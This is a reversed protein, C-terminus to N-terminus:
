SPTGSIVRTVPDFVIGAPLSGVVAYTPAPSGSAEPVTIPTIAIGRTWSQAAGMSNAFLPAAVAAELDFALVPGGVSFSVQIDTPTTAPFVVIDIGDSAFYGGSNTAVLRLNVIVDASPSPATWVADKVTANTFAGPTEPVNDAAATWLYTLSLNNPDTVTASLNIVDGADAFFSPSSVTVTPLNADVNDAPGVTNSFEDTSERRLAYYPQGAPREYSQSLTTAVIDDLVVTYTTSSTIPTVDACVLQLVHGDPNTWTYENEYTTQTLTLVFSTVTDELDFALAPGGINFAVAIQDTSIPTPSVSGVDPGILQVGVAQSLLLFHSASASGKRAQITATHNQLGINEVIEMYLSPQMANTAYTGSGDGRILSALEVDDWLMRVESQQGSSTGYMTQFAYAIVAVQGEDDIVGTTESIVDTWTDTDIHGPDTWYQFSRSTLTGSQGGAVSGDLTQPGQNDSREVPYPSFTALTRVGDVGSGIRIRLENGNRQVQGIVTPNAGMDQFVVSEPNIEGVGATGNHNHGDLVDARLRNYQDADTLEGNNVISSRIQPTTM